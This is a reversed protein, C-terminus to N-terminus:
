DLGLARVEPLDAVANFGSLLLVPQTIGAARLRRADELMAVGFADANALAGAASELGHGYADAKVVAMVRSRPARRRMEALNHRLADGHITAKTPRPM